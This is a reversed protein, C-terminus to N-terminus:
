CHSTHAAYDAAPFHLASLPSTSDYVKAVVITVFKEAYVHVMIQAFEVASPCKVIVKLLTSDSDQAGADLKLDFISQAAPIDSSCISLDDCVFDFDTGIAGGKIKVKVFTFDSKKICVHNDAPDHPTDFDDFGYRQNSSAAFTVSAVTLKVTKDKKSGDPDTRTVTVLEADRASSHAGTAKVIVVPSTANLLRIKTSTTKWAYTCGSDGPLDAATMTVGVGTVNLIRCPANVIFDKSPEGPLVVVKRTKNALPSATSVAKALVKKSTM